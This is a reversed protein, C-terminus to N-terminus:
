FLLGSRQKAIITKRNTDPLVQNVFCVDAIAIGFISKLVSHTRKITDSLVAATASYRAFALTRFSSTETILLLLFM